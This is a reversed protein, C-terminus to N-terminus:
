SRGTLRKANAKVRRRAPSQVADAVGMIDHALRTPNMQGLLARLVLSGAARTGNVSGQLAAEVKEGVMRKMEASPPRGSLGEAAIMPLRMAITTMADNNAQVTDFMMRVARTQLAFFDRM